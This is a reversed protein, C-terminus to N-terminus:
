GTDTVAFSVEGGPGREPASLPRPTLDGKLEITGRETFKAANSLLNFLAQRVKTQDAHMTGADDACVVVLTNGNKEILPIASPGPWHAARLGTPWYPAVWLEGRIGAYVRTEVPSM